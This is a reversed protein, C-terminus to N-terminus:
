KCIKKHDANEYCWSTHRPDVVFHNGNSIYHAACYFDLSIKNTAENKDPYGRVAAAREGQTGQTDLRVGSNLSLLPTKTHESESCCVLRALGCHAFFPTNKLPRDDCSGAALSLRSITFSHGEAELGRKIDHRLRRRDCKELASPNACLGM